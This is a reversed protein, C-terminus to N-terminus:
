SKKSKGVDLDLMRLIPSLQEGILRVVKQDGAKLIQSVPPIVVLIGLRYGKIDITQCM